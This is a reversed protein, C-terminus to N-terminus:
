LRTRIAGGSGAFEGLLGKTIDTFKELLLVHHYISLINILVQEYKEMRESNRKLTYSFSAHVGSRFTDSIIM